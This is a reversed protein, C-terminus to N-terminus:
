RDPAGRRVRDSLKMEARYACDNIIGAEGFVDCYQGHCILAAVMSSGREELTESMIDIYKWVRRM